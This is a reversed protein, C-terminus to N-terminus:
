PVVTRDDVPVARTREARPFTRGRDRGDVGDVWLLGSHGRGGVGRDAGEAGAVVVEGREDGPQGGFSRVRCDTAVSHSTEWTTLWRPLPATM